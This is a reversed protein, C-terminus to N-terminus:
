APRRTIIAYAEPTGPAGAGVEAGTLGEQEALRCWTAPHFPRGPALDAALESGAAAWAGPEAGIVVLVGGPRLRSAAASLMSVKAGPPLVDTAGSLVAGALM